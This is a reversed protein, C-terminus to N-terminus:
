NSEKGDRGDGRVGLRCRQALRQATSGEPPRIIGRRPHPTARAHIHRTPYGQTGDQHVTPESIWIHSGSPPGSLNSSPKAGACTDEPFFDTIIDILAKTNDDQWVALVMEFMDDTILIPFDTIKFVFDPFPNVRIVRFTIATSSWVKCLPLLQNYTVQTRHCHPWLDLVSAGAPEVQLLLDKM